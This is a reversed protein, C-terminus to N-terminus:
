EQSLLKSAIKGAKKLMGSLSNINWGDTRYLRGDVKIFVPEAM